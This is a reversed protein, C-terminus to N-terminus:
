IKIIRIEKDNMNYIDIEKLEMIPVKNTEKPSTM